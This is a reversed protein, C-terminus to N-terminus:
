VLQSVNGSGLDYHLYEINTSWKPSIAFSVGGGAVWGNKTIADSQTVGGITTSVHVDAWGWGATGYFLAKDAAFGVKARASANWSSGFKCQLAPGGVICGGTADGTLLNMDGVLGFVLKNKQWLHQANIGGGFNTASALNFPTVENANIFAIQAQGGLYFGTWDFSPAAPLADAAFASTGSLLIAAAVVWFTKKM